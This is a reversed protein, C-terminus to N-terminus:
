RREMAETCNRIVSIIKDRVSNYPNDGAKEYAEVVFNMDAQADNLNDLNDTFTDAMSSWMLSEPLNEYSMQEDDTVKELTDAANKLLQKLAKDNKAGKLMEMVALVEQLEERRSKNM